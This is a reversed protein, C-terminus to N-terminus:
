SAVREEDENQDREDEMRKLKIVRREQSHDYVQRLMTPNTHGALLAAVNEDFQETM